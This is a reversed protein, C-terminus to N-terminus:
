VSSAGFFCRRVRCDGLTQNLKVHLCDSKSHPPHFRAHVPPHEAEEASRRTKGRFPSRIGAWPLRTKSRRGPDGILFVSKGQLPLPVLSVGNGANITQGSDRVNCERAGEPCRCNGCGCGRAASSSESAVPSTDTDGEPFLRHCGPFFDHPSLRYM